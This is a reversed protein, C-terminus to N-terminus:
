GWANDRECPGRTSSEPTPTAREAILEGSRGIPLIMPSKGAFGACSRLIRRTCRGRLQESHGPTLREALLLVGHAPLQWYRVTDFGNGFFCLGVSQHRLLAAYDDQTYPTGPAQLPYRRHSGARCCVARVASPSQWAWFVGEREMREMWRRSRDDPYAFSPGPTPGTPNLGAVMERKFYGAVHRIGDRESRDGPSQRM